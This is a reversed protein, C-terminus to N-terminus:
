SEVLGHARLANLMQGITTRAESDIMTGGVPATIASQRSGIVRQGGVYYGDPRTAVLRWGSGDHVREAGEDIVHCRWGARPEAFRWGGATWQAIAGGHDAWGGTPAAAVIWCAGLAPSTPPAGLAASQVVPQVLLDLAQLAENHTIEKQAQGAALFPLELRPTTEDSM